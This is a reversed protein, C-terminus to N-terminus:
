SRKWIHVLQDRAVNEVNQNCHNSAQRRPPCLLYQPLWLWDCLTRIMLACVWWWNDKVRPFQILDGRNNQQLFLFPYFEGFLLHFGFSFFAAFTDVMSLQFNSTAIMQPLGLLIHINPKVSGFQDMYSPPANRIHPSPLPQGRIIHCYLAGPGASRNNSWNHNGSVWLGPRVEWKVSNWKM